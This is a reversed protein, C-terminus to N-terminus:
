RKKSHEFFWLLDEYVDQDASQVKALAGKIIRRIENKETRMILAIEVINQPDLHYDLSCTSDLGSLDGSRIAERDEHTRGIVRLVSRYQEPELALHHRCSVYPCPRATPCDARARPRNIPRGPIAQKNGVERRYFEGVSRRTWPADNGVRRLGKSNLSEAISAWTMKYHRANKLLIVLTRKSQYNFVRPNTM